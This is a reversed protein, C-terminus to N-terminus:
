HSGADARAPCSGTTYVCNGGATCCTSYAKSVSFIGMGSGGDVPPDSQITSFYACEDDVAVFGASTMTAPTGSLPVRVISGPCVDCGVAEFFSSGDFVLAWPYSPAGPISTLDGNAHLRAIEGPGGYVM